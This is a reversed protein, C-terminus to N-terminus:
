EKIIENIISNVPNLPGDGTIVVDFAELYNDLMHANKQMNNLFGINLIQDHKDKDVMECDEIIDGLLIVNPRMKERIDDIAIKNVFEKKNM